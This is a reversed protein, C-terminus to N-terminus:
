PLIAPLTMRSGPAVGHRRLIEGMDPMGNAAQGGHAAAQMMQAVFDANALFVIATMEEPNAGKTSTFVVTEGPKLDNIAAPPLMEIMQAMGRGGPQFAPAGGHEGAGGGHMHNMIERMDPVRKMHTGATLKVTVTENNALNEITVRNAEPQVDKITGATTLFTGFVIEQATITLGDASKDGRAQLQDGPAIADVNSFEADAFRVSDPAYRRVAAGDNVIVTATQSGVRLMVRDGDKSEVVGSVGRTQWDRRNAENRKAIDTATMLVIRRAAPMDHVFSVLVRDGTLVDTIRAPESKSLDQEGPAVRIVETDPTFEIACAAGHDPKLLISSTHSDVKFGTITGIISKSPATQAPLLASALAVLAAARLTPKTRTRFRM